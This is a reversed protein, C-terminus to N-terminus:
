IPRYVWEAFRSMDLMPFYFMSEPLTTFSEIIDEPTGEQEYVAITNFPSELAGPRQFQTLQFCQGSVLAPINLAHRIHRTAYWERFEAEQGMVGNAFALTLMSPAAVPSLGVKESVPYYLWTAPAQAAAQQRHLATIREILGEAASAGDLSLEYLGLYHFPLRPYLGQTIDIDHQEYHQVRVVGDHNSVSQRYAGQYWHLFEAEHTPNANSLVFIVHSRQRKLMALPLLGGDTTTSGSM